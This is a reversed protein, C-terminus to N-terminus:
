QRSQLDSWLEEGIVGHGALIRDPRGIAREGYLLLHPVEEVVEIVAWAGVDGQSDLRYYHFPEAEAFTLFDKTESIFGLHRCPAADPFHRRFDSVPVVQTVRAARYNTAGNAPDLVVRAIACRQMENPADGFGNPRAKAPEFLLWEVEKPKAKRALQM